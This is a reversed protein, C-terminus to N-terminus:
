GAQGEAPQFTAGPDIQTWGTYTNAGIAKILNGNGRVIVNGTGSIAGGYNFSGTTNFILLSNNTIQGNANLSGTSGGNGLQLTGASITTGGSYSNNKTLIITGSGNNNVVGGGSIVNAITLTGARNFNLVSNNVIDGSGLSGSAGGDGIQLVGGSITTVGSQTNTGTLVWTGAGSKTLATAGGQDTINAALTNNDTSAGTLTLARAGAGTLGVSGSQNLVLAGSGSADITGGGATLTFLRDITAASGTYQLTGSDFVLSAASGSAAGIDSPSGGNALTGVSVIGGSLTTVGTYDNAGGSLTLIGTGSKTFTAAGGIRNAGSSAISYASSGGVSVSKPQVLANVTVNKTGTASDDFVVPTPDVYTTPSGGALWNNASTWNGDVNGNWADALATINLRISNGNTSLNGLAGNLVGLSVAPATGTTWSFLPYSAGVDFTGSNINITVTGSAVLAGAALPETTANTVNNFGLSSAGLTLTGPTVQAGTDTIALTAGDAVTINGNGSKAGQFVLRGGSVTTAGSYSSAGSLTLTGPGNKTLTAGSSGLGTALTVNQGATDFSYQQGAATDFRSSYDFTNNVSFGLTGGNFTIVGGVGLPGSTGATEVGGVILEGGSLTVNGSFTSAGSSFTWTGANIQIPGSGTIQRSMVDSEGDADFELLTGNQQINGGGGPLLGSSAIILPGAGPDLIVNNLLSNFKDNDTGTGNGGRKWITTGTTKWELDQGPANNNFRLNNTINFNGTGLFQIIHGAAGGGNQIQFNPNIILPNASLNIWTHTGSTPRLTAVFQHSSGDGLILSPAGAVMQIANFGWGASSARSPDCTLTVTGTQSALIQVSTGNAGFSGGISAGGGNIGNASYLVLPGPVTGDFNLITDTVPQSGSGQGNDGSWNTAYGLDGGNPGIWTLSQAFVPATSAICCLVILFGLMTLKTKM